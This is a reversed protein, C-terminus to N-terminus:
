REAPMGFAYLTGDSAVVYVQSDGASPGVGRVSSTITTGSTWLEKGTAGDLAYLVAPTPRQARAGAGGHGRRERARVRRRQRDGAHGAGWIARCGSRSCRRPTTRTSSRSRRSRARRRRRRQDDRVEDDAHVPGSSRRSSGARGPPMRGRPSAPRCGDAAVSVAVIKHLPTKHDAGGLSASDLVYLRGDKNAAVVSGQGQVPVRDSELHLSVRGRLVLGEAHLTKAELSVIPTPWPRLGPQRDRCLDHRRHRVDAGRRRCGRRGQHRVDHRDEGRERSRGGLRREAAGGCNGTTAAYLVNDVLISGVVNANPPLFKVPPIQDTGVQPNMVHVM